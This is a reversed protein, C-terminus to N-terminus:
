YIFLGYMPHLLDWVLYATLGILALILGLTLLGKQRDTSRKSAERNKIITTLQNNKEDIRKLYDASQAEEKELASRFYDIQSQFMNRQEAMQRIYTEDRVVNERKLAAIQDDKQRLLEEYEAMSQKIETSSAPCPADLLPEGVRSGCIATLANDIAGVTTWKFDKDSHSFYDNITSESINPAADYISRMLIGRQDRMDRHFNRVNMITGLAALKPGNCTKGYDPCTLCKQYLTVSNQSEPTINPPNPMTNQSRLLGENGTTKM